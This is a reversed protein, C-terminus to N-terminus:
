KCYFEKLFPFILFTLFVKGSILFYASDRSITHKDLIKNNSLINLKSYIVNSNIVVFVDLM